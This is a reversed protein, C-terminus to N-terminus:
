FKRSFALMLSSASRMYRDVPYRDRKEPLVEAATKRLVEGLDSQLRRYIFQEGGGVLDRLNGIVAAKGIDRHEVLCKPFGIMLRRRFEPTRMPGFPLFLFSNGPLQFLLNLIQNLPITHSCRWLICTPQLEGCSGPISLFKREDPILDDVNSRRLIQKARLNLFM